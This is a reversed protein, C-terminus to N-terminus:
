SSYITSIVQNFGPLGPLNCPVVPCKFFDVSHFIAACRDCLVEFSYQGYLLVTSYQLVVGNFSCYMTSGGLGAGAGGPREGLFHRRVDM